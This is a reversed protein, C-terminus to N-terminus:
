WSGPALSRGSAETHSSHRPGVKIEIKKAAPGPVPRPMHVELVGDKLHADISAEDVNAPLRVTREFRGFFRESCLRGKEDQRHEARKEGTITLMGDNVTVTMDKAEVGPLEVHVVVESDTETVDCRPSWEFGLSGDAKVSAFFDHNFPDRPSWGVLEEFPNSRLANPM